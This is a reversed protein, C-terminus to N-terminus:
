TACSQILLIASVQVTVTTETMSAEFSSAFQVEREGGFPSPNGASLLCLLVSFFFCGFGWCLGFGECISVSFVKATKKCKACGTVKATM